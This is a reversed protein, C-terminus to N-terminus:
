FGGEVKDIVLMAERMGEVEYYAEIISDWSVRYEAVMKVALWLLYRIQEEKTLDKYAGWCAGASYTYNDSESGRVLPHEFVRCEGDADWVPAANELSILYPRKEGM